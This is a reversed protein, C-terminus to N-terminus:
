DDNGFFGTLQILTVFINYLSVFLAVTALVYNKEGGRVINNIEYVILLSSCVLFAGSVIVSIIPAQFIFFNVLSAVFAILIGIGAFFGLNSFDKETNNGIVSAILFIAGTGVFSTAITAGNGADTVHNLLPGLTFGLLGTLAFTLIIGMTNNKNKNIMFLLAFYLVLTIIPHIIFNIQMSVFAMIGAFVLTTSLFQYTQSLVKNASLNGTQENTAIM